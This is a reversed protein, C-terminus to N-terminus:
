EGQLTNMWDNARRIMLDDKQKVSVGVSGRCVSSCQQAPQKIYLECLIGDLSLQCPTRLNLRRRLTLESWM